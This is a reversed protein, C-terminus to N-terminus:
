LYFGNLIGVIPLFASKPQEREREKSFCPRSGLIGISVARTGQYEFMEDKRKEREDERKWRWQNSREERKDVQGDKNM